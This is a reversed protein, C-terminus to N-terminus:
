SQVQRVLPRDMGAQMAEQVVSPKLYGDKTLEIGEAGVRQLLWQVPHVVAAIVESPLAARWFFRALETLQQNIAKVDVHAPDFATASEGSVSEFWDVADASDQQQGKLAEILKYYGHIGGCDEVPGRRSAAICELHAPLVPDNGVVTVLHDWADGFDYEYALKAGTWGAIAALETRSADETGLEDASEAPTFDPQGRFTDSVSFQYLHLDQWGFARQIVQHLDSLLISASVSLTREIPPSSEDIVIHLQVGPVRDIM